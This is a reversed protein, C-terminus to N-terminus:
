RGGAIWLSLSITRAPNQWSLFEHRDRGAPRRAWLLGPGPDAGASTPGVVLKVGDFRLDLRRRGGRNRHGDDPRRGARRGKRNRVGTRLSWRLAVVDTSTGGMDFGIAREFGAAQAVRSFGVVGGAPGSLISDKGVFQEADVLGGASTM